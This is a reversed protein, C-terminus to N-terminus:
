RDLFKLLNRMLETPIAYVRTNSKENALNNITQLTRIHLAGPTSTLQKAAKVLNQSAALEGEAKIIVARKEREAEAAKGIIRILDPPLEIDKLEVSEVKIGWPDTAKDVIEKIKGSTTERQGLLSDLSTEGVVNRMSTQALQSTADYYDQIEMVALKPDAVRFYLVANVMVSVNDRTMIDQKPVDIANVRIDIRRWTQIVPIVIQLGPEMIGSFQGLTFKIGREYQNVIKISSLALLIIVISGPFCLFALLEAIM